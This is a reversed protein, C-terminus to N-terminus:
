VVFILIERIFPLFDVEMKLLWRIKSGCGGTRTVAM